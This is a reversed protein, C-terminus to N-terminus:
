NRKKKSYNNYQKKRPFDFKIRYNFYKESNIYEVAYGYDTTYIIKSIGADAIAKLCAPCPRALGYGGNNLCRAIYISAGRLDQKWRCALLASVEAHLFPARHFPMEKNYEQMVPHGKRSNNGVSIVRNGKYIVAGVRITRGANTHFHSDQAISIATNLKRIDNM